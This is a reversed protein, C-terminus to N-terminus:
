VLTDRSGPDLRFSQAVLRNHVRQARQLLAEPLGETLSTPGCQHTSTDFNTETSSPPHSQGFSKMSGIQKHEGAMPVYNAADRPNGGLQLEHLLLAGVQEPEWILSAYSLVLVPQGFNRWSDIRNLLAEYLATERRVVEARHKAPAYTQWVDRSPPPVEWTGKSNSWEGGYSIISGKVDIDKLTSTVLFARTLM